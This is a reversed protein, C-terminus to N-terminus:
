GHALGGAKAKEADEIALLEGNIESLALMASGSGAIGAVQAKELVERILELKDQM